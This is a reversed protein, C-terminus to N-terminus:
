LERALRWIFANKPTGLVQEEGTIEIYSDFEGPHGSSDKEYSLTLMMSKRQSVATRTGTTETAIEYARHSKYHADAFVVQIYVPM